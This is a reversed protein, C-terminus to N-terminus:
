KISELLRAGEEILKEAVGAKFSSSEAEYGGETYSDMMPFYGTSGNVICCPIVKEFCSLETM